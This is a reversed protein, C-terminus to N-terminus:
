RFANKSNLDSDDMNVNHKSQRSTYTVHIQVDSRVIREVGVAENNYWVSGSSWNVSKWCSVFEMVRIKGQWVKTNPMSKTSQQLDSLAEVATQMWLKSTLSSSTYMCAKHLLHCAHELHFKLWGQMDCPTCTKESTKQTFSKIGHGRNEPINAYQIIMYYQFKMEKCTKFTKDFLM